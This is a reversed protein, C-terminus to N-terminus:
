QSRVAAWDAERDIDVAAEPLDIATVEASFERLLTRAGSEGDLQRLAPFHERSFLAPVGLVGTYRSAIIGPCTDDYAARLRRLSGVDVRAQDCTLLVAADADDVAGIGASVSTGLGDRWRENITIRVDLDALAARAQEVIAGLVVVVPAFGAELAVRAARHLLTEGALELLQKPRGLRSSNGAALIIAAVRDNSQRM